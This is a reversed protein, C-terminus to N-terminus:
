RQMLRNPNGFENRIFVHRKNSNSYRRSLMLALGGLRLAIDGTRFSQVLVISSHGEM